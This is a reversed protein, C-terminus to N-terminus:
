SFFFFFLYHKNKNNKRSTFDTALVSRTVLINEGAVRAISYQQYSTYIGYLHPEPNVDPKWSSLDTFPLLNLISLRQKFSQIYWYFLLLFLLQFAFCHVVWNQTFLPALSLHQFSICLWLPSKLIKMEIEFVSSPSPGYGFEVSTM